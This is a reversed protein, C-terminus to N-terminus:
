LDKMMMDVKEPLEGVGMAAWIIFVALLIKLLGPIAFGTWERFLNTVPPFYVFSLLCLFIGFGQDNGWFVNILGIVFAIIGFLYSLINLLFTKQNLVNESKGTM